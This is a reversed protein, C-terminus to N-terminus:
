GPLYDGLFTLDDASSGTGSSSPFCYGLLNIDGLMCTVLSYYILTNRWSDSCWGLSFLQILESDEGGEGESVGLSWSATKKEAM